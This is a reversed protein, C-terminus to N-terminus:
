EATLARQSKVNPMRGTKMSQFRLMLRLVLIATAGMRLMAQM